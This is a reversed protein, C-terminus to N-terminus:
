YIMANSVDRIEKATVFHCDNREEAKAQQLSLLQSFFTRYIMASIEGSPIDPSIVNIGIGRLCDSLSQCYSSMKDLIIVTDDRCASFLEMHSFQETRSYHVGRGTTEYLKAACYMAIPYAAMGGLIYHRGSMRVNAVDSEAKSFLRASDPMKFQRVLSVCTLASALFSISGATFVGSDPFDLLITNDAARALRGQPRTTIATASGAARAAKIGAVTEGSISVIYLHRSQMLTKSRYLDLPDMARVRGISFSEALMASALSDGSGSFICGNQVNEPILEQMKFSRLFEPQLRIENEYAEITNVDHYQRPRINDSSCSGTAHWIMGLVFEATM